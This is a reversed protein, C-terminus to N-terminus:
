DHDGGEVPMTGEQRQKEAEKRGEDLMDFLDNLGKTLAVANTEVNRLYQPTITQLNESVIEIHSKAKELEKLGKEMEERVEKLEREIQESM